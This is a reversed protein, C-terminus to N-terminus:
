VSLMIVVDDGDDDDICSSASVAASDAVMCISRCCFRVRRFCIRVLM